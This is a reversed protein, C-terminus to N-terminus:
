DEHIAKKKITNKHGHYRTRCHAAADIRNLVHPTTSGPLFILNKLCIESFNRNKWSFIEIKELL